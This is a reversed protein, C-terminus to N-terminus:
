GSGRLDIPGRLLARTVGGTAVTLTYQARPGWTYADIASKTLALALNPASAGLTIGSGNALSVLATEGSAYRVIFAATYGSSLDEPQSPQSFWTVNLSWDAGRTITLPYEGPRNTSTGTVISIGGAADADVRAILEQHTDSM